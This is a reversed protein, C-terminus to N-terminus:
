LNLIALEAHAFVPLFAFIPYFLSFNAFISLFQCFFSVIGVGLNSFLLNPFNADIPLFLNGEM